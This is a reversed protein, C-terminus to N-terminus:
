KFGFEHICTVNHEVAIALLGVMAVGDVAAGDGIRIGGAREDIGGADGIGAADGM